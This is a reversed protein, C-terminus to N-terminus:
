HSVLPLTFPAADDVHGRHEDPGFVVISAGDRTITTGAPMGLYPFTWAYRAVLHSLHVGRLQDPDDHNHARDQCGAFWGSDHYQRDTLSSRTLALPSGGGPDVHSCVIASDGRHPHEATGTIRNRRIAEEQIALLAIATHVGDAFASAHEAFPEVLEQLVLREQSGQELPRTRMMTWGYRITQSARIPKGHRLLYRNLFTLLREVQGDRTEHPLWPLPVGLEAQPREQDGALAIDRLGETWAWRERDGNSTFCVQM